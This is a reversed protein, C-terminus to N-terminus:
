STLSLSAAQTVLKAMASNYKMVDNAFKPGPNYSSLTEMAKTVSNTINVMKNVTTSLTGIVPIESIQPVRFSAVLDLIDDPIQKYPAQMKDEIVTFDISWAYSLPQSANAFVRPSRPLVSYIEEAYEDIVQFEYLFKNQKAKQSSFKAIEISSLGGGLQYNTDTWLRSYPDNLDAFFKIFEKFSQKWKQPTYTKFEPTFETSIIVGREGAKPFVGRMSIEDIGNGYLEAITGSVGDVVNTRLNISDQYDNYYFTKGENNTPFTFRAIENQPGSEKLLMNRQANFRSVPNIGTEDKIFKFESGRKSKEIIRFILKPHTFLLDNAM